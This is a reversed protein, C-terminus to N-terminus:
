HPSAMVILLGDEDTARALRNVPSSERKPRFDVTLSRGRYTRAYGVLELWGEHSRHFYIEDPAAADRENKSRRGRLLQVPTGNVYTRHIQEVPTFAKWDCITLTGAPQVSGNPFVVPDDTHVTLCPSQAAAAGAMLLFLGVAWCSITANRNTAGQQM